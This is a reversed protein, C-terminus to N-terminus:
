FVSPGVKREEKKGGKIKKREQEKTRENKGRKKRREM